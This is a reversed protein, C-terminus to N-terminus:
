DKLAEVKKPDTRAIEGLKLNAMSIEVKLKEIRDLKEQREDEPDSRKEGEEKIKLKMEEITAKAEETQTELTKIESQRNCLGKSPLAWFFAGAGIRDMEVLNDDVLGQNM